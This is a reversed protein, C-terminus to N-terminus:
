WLDNPLSPNLPGPRRLVEKAERLPDEPARLLARAIAAHLRATAVLVYTFILFAVLCIAALVLASSLTHVDMGVAGPGIPGHPFIGVYLGHASQSPCYGVCVGTAHGYWFPVTISALFTLWVTMVVFDLIWLPALLGFLYAVDRWMAPDSWRARLWAGIGGGTGGGNVGGKANGTINGTVGTVARYGVAVPEADVIRLRAREFLACGKILAPGVALVLVIGVVTGIGVVIFLAVAFLVWAVVLYSFLYSAAAWPAPSFLLSVPDRRLSLRTM